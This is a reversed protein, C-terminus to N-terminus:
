DVEKAEVFLSERYYMYRTCECLFHIEDELANDCLRCIRAQLTIHRYRGVEIELSLIGCRFQAFFSRQYKNINMKIYEEASKDYKYLNCYRLKDSKYRSIDWDMLDMEVLANQTFPLDCASSAHFMINRSTPM